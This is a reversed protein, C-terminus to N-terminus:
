LDEDDDELLSDEFSKEPQEITEIFEKAEETRDRKPPPSGMNFQPVYSLEAKIPNDPDGSMEHKVKPTFKGKIELFKTAAPVSGCRMQRKLCKWADVIGAETEDELLGNFYKVFDEDRMWNYLTTRSIGVRSCIETITLHQDLDVMLKVVEIQESTPVWVNGESDTLLQECNEISIGHKKLAEEQRKIIEMLQSKTPRSNIKKVKAKIRM